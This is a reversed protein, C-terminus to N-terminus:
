LRNKSRKIAPIVPPAILYFLPIPSSPQIRRAMPTMASGEGPHFVRPASARVTNFGLHRFLPRTASTVGLEM